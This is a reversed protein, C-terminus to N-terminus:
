DHDIEVDDLEYVQDYFALYADELDPWPKLGEEDIVWRSGPMKPLQGGRELTSFITKMDDHLMAVGKNIPAYRDLLISLKDKAKHLAVPNKIRRSEREKFYRVAVTSIAYGLLGISVYLIIRSLNNM